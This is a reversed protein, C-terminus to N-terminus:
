PYSFVFDVLQDKFREGDPTNRYNSIQGKFPSPPHPFSPNAPLVHATLCEMVLLPVSPALSAWPLSVKNQPISHTYLHKVYAFSLIVVHAGEAM